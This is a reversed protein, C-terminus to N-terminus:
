FFMIIYATTCNNCGAHFQQPNLISPDHLSSKGICQTVVCTGGSDAHSQGDNTRVCCDKSTDGVPTDIESGAVCDSQSYCQQSLGANRKSPLHM